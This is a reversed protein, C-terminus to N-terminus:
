KVIRGIVECAITTGLLTPAFSISPTASGEPKDLASKNSSVVLLKEVGEDRLKKRLVKALPDGTTKFIDMAKYEPNELRRGAGMSSIINIGKDTCHKILAVKAGMDDIADVVFDAKSIFMKINDKDLKVDLPFCKLEPNIDLLQLALVEVKKKGITSQYAVAQRNINSEDVIDCDIVTIKGVGARVLMQACIGGVGGVGCVVVSSGRLREVNDKGILLETRTSFSM